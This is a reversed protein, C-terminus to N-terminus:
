KGRVRKILYLGNWIDSERVQLADAIDKTDKGDLWMAKAKSWRQETMENYLYKQTSIEAKMKM